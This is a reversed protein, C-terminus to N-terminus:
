GLSDMGWVEDECKMEYATTVPYLGWRGLVGDWEEGDEVRIVACGGSLAKDELARILPQMWGINQYGKHFLVHLTKHKKGSAVEYLACGVVDDQQRVVALSLKGDWLKLKLGADLIQRPNDEVAQMILSEVEGTFQNVAKGKEYFEVKM